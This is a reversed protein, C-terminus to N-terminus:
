QLGEKKAVQEMLVDLEHNEYIIEKLLNSFNKIDLDKFSDYINKCYQRTKRKHWGQRRNPFIPDFEDRYNKVSAPKVGLSFGVVNFAETFNEFGLKNLGRDDFKALFLGALISKERLTLKQVSM